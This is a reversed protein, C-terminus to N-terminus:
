IKRQRKRAAKFQYMVADAKCIIDDLSFGANLKGVACGISATVTYPKEYTGARAELLKTFEAARQEPVDADYQGVGIIYFEDGGARVCIENEKAAAEVAASVTRIGFDGENHGFTDNIYKLGDLDIVCVFLSDDPKACKLMPETKLYMGRRNYAGTMEDRVSLTLLRRKARSM